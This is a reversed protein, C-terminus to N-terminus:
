ASLHEHVIQWSGNRKELINTGRGSGSKHQGDVIGEWSFHYTCVAVLDNKVPWQVNTIKYVEDQIKAFTAEIAGRIEDIGSFSGDTFWYTASHAIFPEVNAWVHGNNAKEYAQMFAALEGALVKVATM